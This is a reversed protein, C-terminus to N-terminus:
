CTLPPNSYPNPICPMTSPDLQDAGIGLTNSVLSIIGWFCLIVFLGILGQIIKGRAGKKAEEDSSITYQIVGWIFWVVALSILLPIAYRLLKAILDLINWIDNNAISGGQVQAFVFLPSAALVSGLLVLKKM